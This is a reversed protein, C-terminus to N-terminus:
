QLGASRLRRQGQPLTGDAGPMLKSVPIADGRMANAPIMIDKVYQALEARETKVSLETPEEQAEAWGSPILIEQVGEVGADVANYNRMIVDMGKHGYSKVIADKMNITFSRVPQDSQGNRFASLIGGPTTDKSGLGYRGGVDESGGPPARWRRWWMWTCRSEM